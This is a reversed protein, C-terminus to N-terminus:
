LEVEKTQGVELGEASAIAINFTDGCTATGDVSSLQYRVIVYSDAPAIEIITANLKISM